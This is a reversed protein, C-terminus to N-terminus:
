VFWATKAKYSVAVPAKGLKYVLDGPSSRTVRAANDNGLSDTATTVSTYKGTFLNLNGARFATSTRNTTIAELKNIGTQLSPVAAGSLLTKNAVTALTSSVRKGVPRQDNYAFVGASVSKDTDTGDVVVSGYVGVNVGKVSRNSLTSSVGAKVAVGGKNKTSGGVYYNGVVSSGDIQLTAM